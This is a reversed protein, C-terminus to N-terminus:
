KGTSGFGGKGRITKTLNKVEKFKAKIVPCIKDVVEKSVTKTHPKYTQMSMRIAVATDAELLREELENRREEEEFLRRASRFAVYTRRNRRRAVGRYRSFMRGLEVENQIPTVAAEDDSSATLDITPDRTERRTIMNQIVEGLAETIGEDM